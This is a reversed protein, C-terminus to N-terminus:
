QSVNAGGNRITMALAIIQTTQPREAGFKERLVVSLPRQIADHWNEALWQAAVETDPNDNAM